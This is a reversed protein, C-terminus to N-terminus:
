RICFKVINPKHNWKSFKCCFMKEERFIGIDIESFKIPKKSNFTASIFELNTLQLPTQFFSKKVSNLHQDM